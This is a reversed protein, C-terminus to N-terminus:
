PCNNSSISNAKRDPVNCIKSNMEAYQAFVHHYSICVHSFPHTPSPSSVLLLHQALALVLLSIQRFCLFLLFVMNNNNTIHRTYLKYSSRILVTCQKEFFLVSFEQGYSRWINVSKGFEKVPLSVPLNPLNDSAFLLKLIELFM